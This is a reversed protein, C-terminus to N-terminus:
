PKIRKMLFAETKNFPYNEMVSFEGQLSRILEKKEEPSLFDAHLLWFNDVKSLDPLYLYDPKISHDRFYFNFHWSFLSYIPYSSSNKMKVFDSVERFQQKEIRSYHKRMFILNIVMSLSIITVIGLKWGKNNIQDWGISIILFWAPLSVITYRVHLMPPGVISKIYPILYSLVLWIIIVLNLAKSETDVRNKGFQLKVFLIILITFVLSVLADKGFYYYFYEAIFAPGPKQIWFSTIKLDNFIM